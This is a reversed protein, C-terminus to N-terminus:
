KCEFDQCALGMETSALSVHQRRLLYLHITRMECVYGVLVFLENGNKGERCVNGEALQTGWTTSWKRKSEKLSLGSWLSGTTDSAACM